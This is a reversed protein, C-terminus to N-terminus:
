MCQKSLVEEVIKELKAIREEQEKIKKDQEQILALMGPIIRREDWSEISGDENHIVASPYVEDVEEAIFGPLLEGRMDKYQPDHNDNYVFQRPKLELLRHPDLDESLESIDHKYRKSSSSQFAVWSNNVKLSGTAYYILRNNGSCRFEWQTTNGTMGPNSTSGGDYKMGNDKFYFGTGQINSYDFDTNYGFAASGFCLSGASSGTSGSKYWRTIRYCKNNVAEVFSHSTSPGHVVVERTTMGTGFSNSVAPNSTSTATYEIVDRNISISHKNTGSSLQLGALATVTAGAYDSYSISGLTGTVTSTGITKSLKFDGTLSLAGTNLNWSNTNNVDAIIGTSMYTANIYLRGNSLYIGQTQGNNTLRNFIGQQNLANDLTTVASSAANATTNATNATSNAGNIAKALVATTYTTTNDTWTIKSRTWIYKGSAWAPQDTSWSGGSQTTSSTSLYYQEVIASVGKGDSGSGGDAGKAGQICTPNSYSVVGSANTTATRQWIYKGNEWTPATTSWGSSPATSSSTGKAYEVDVNLITDNITTGSTSDIITGGSLAFEGTQLNWYNKGAGDTLLGTKILGANLSGTTIFDAVIGNALTAGLTFPGNFGNSSAGWGQYNFRWVKQALAPDPNDAIYLTDPYDDDNTDLLRVAGGKAGLLTATLVDVAQRLFSRSTRQTIIEGQAAITSALTTKADGLTISEYRELISNFKIEIVKATATVGMEEFYVSVTDCLGVQELLLLDQYEATQELSIFSVELSVKPVGINNDTIYKQAAARLDAESPTEDWQDSLDLPYIRTFNYTGAANIVREPLVSVVDDSDRYFPYVGTYVSECNQEQTLDTLNKGYRITVGRDFGRDQYLKVTYGDFEYEGGGYIDLLSGESGGLLSWISKPEDANLNAVTTKDTWFTFPCTTVAANKMNVLAEIISTATFPSAVIGMLDYTLHRCNITVIGKMPKSISYVRMPQPDSMNDPLVLIISRMKIEEFHIGGFMPYKIEAEYIGNRQQVVVCSIVDNLIGIGNNTFSTATTEFLIPKM